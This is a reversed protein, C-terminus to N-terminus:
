YAGLNDNSIVVEDGSIRVQFGPIHCSLLLSDEMKLVGKPHQPYVTKLSELSSPM